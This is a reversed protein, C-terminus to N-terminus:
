IWRRVRSKYVEFSRAYLRELIAEEPKIQFRNMYAAFLVIWPITAANSLWASWAGLLLLMGLYMPNRTLKYVGNTVLASADQPRRPNVTTRSLRFAVVGAMIVAAGGLATIGAAWARGPFDISWEPLTRSGLWASLGFTMLVIVPPVKLHLNPM